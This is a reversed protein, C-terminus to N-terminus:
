IFHSKCMSCKCRSSRCCKWNLFCGAKVADCCLLCFFKLSRQCIWLRLFVGRCKIMIEEPAESYLARLVTIQLATAMVKQQWICTKSIDGSWWVSSSDSNDMWVWLQPICKCVRNGLLRRRLQKSGSLNGQHEAQLSHQLCTNWRSTGM